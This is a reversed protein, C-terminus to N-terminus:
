VRSLTVLVSTWGVDVEVEVVVVVSTWGMDVEMDVVPVVVLM